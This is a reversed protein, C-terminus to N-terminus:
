PNQTDDQRAQTKRRRRATEEQQQRDGGEQQVESQQPEAQQPEAQPAEDPASGGTGEDAPGSGDARVVQQNPADYLEGM